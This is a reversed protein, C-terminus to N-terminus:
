QMCSARNLVDAKFIAIEQSRKMKEFTFYVIKSDVFKLSDVFTFYDKKPRALRSIEKNRSIRM